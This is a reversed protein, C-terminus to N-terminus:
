FAERQSTFTRAERIERILEQASKNSVFAGFSSKFRKKGDTPTESKASKTLKSILDLKASPSLYDLIQLYANILTTNIDAAKM